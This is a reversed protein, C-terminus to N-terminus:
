SYGFEFALDEVGHVIEPFFPNSIDTVMLAIIKTRKRTFSGKRSRVPTYNLEKAVQVVKRKTEESIIPDDNLARSVTSPSVGSRRALENITIKVLRGGNEVDM